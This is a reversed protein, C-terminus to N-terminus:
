QPPRIKSCPEHFILWISSVKRLLSTCKGTDQGELEGKRMAQFVYDYTAWATSGLTQIKLNSVAGLFRLASGQNLESEYDSLWREITERTEMEGDQIGSYDAAYLALVAQKNRTEAFMEASKAEALIAAEVAEDDSGAWAPGAL